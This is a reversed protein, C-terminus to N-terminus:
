GRRHSLEFETIEGAMLREIDIDAQSENTYEKVVRLIKYIWGTKSGSFLRNADKRRSEFELCVYEAKKDANKRTDNVGKQYAAVMIAQIIENVASEIDYLAARSEEPVIPLVDNLRDDFIKFNKCFDRSNCVNERISDIKSATLRQAKIIQMTKM